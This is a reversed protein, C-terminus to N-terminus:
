RTEQATGKRAGFLSFRGAAPREKTAKKEMGTLAKAFRVFAGSLENHNDVTVPIGKNLAQLARRYDSPFTFKV